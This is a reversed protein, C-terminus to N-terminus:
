KVKKVNPPFQYVRQAVPSHSLRQTLYRCWHCECSLPPLCMAQGDDFGRRYEKINRTKNLLSDMAYVLVFILCVMSVFGAVIIM